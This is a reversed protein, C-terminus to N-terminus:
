ESTNIKLNEINFVFYIESSLMTSALIDGFM